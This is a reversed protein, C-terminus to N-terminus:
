INPRPSIQFLHPRDVYDPGNKFLTGGTVFIMAAWFLLGLLIETSLEAPVLLSLTFM